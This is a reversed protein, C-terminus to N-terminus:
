DHCFNERIEKKLRLRAGPGYSELPFGKRIGDLIQSGLLSNAEFDGFRVHELGLAACNAALEDSLKPFQRFSFVNEWVLIRFKDRLVEIMKQLYEVSPKYAGGGGIVIHFIAEADIEECWEEFDLDRSILAPFQESDIRVSADDSSSFLNPRVATSLLSRKLQVSEDLKAGHRIHVTDYPISAM